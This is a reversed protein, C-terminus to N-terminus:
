ILHEGRFVIRGVNDIDVMSPSVLVDLDNAHEKKVNDILEKLNFSM